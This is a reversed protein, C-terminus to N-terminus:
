GVTAIDRYDLTLGMKYSAVVARGLDDAFFTLTMVLTTADLDIKRVQAGRIFWPDGPNTKSLTCNYLTVGVLTHGHYLDDMSEWTFLGDILQYLVSPEHDEQGAGGPIAM